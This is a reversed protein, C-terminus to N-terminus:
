IFNKGNVSVKIRTEIFQRSSEEQNINEVSDADIWDYVLHGEELHVDMCAINVQDPELNQRSIRERAHKESIEIAKKVAQEREMFFFREEEGHVLFGRNEEGPRVKAQSSVQVGATAAGVANAVEYNDPILLDFDYKERVKGYWSKSPAGIACVPFNLDMYRAINEGYIKEVVADEASKVLAEEDKVEPQGECFEEAYRKVAEKALSQNWQIFEGTFHMLDTPTLNGKGGRCAPLVREPGIIFGEKKPKICSDGGLAFTYLKASKIRLKWGGINAGEKSLEVRKNRVIGTDTTTGGMDTVVANEVGTLNITGIMSAAPGSLVTEIPREKILKESAISGDGKVVFIPSKIGTERLVNEIAELFRNIIPLLGANIVATNTRELYGLESALEHACMVPIRGARQVIEKVEREQSPNRISYAGSVAIAEICAPVKELTELVNSRSVNVLTRGKINMKGKVQYVYPSAISGRPMDGVILLAAKCLKKEVIANTALTTSLVTKEICAIEENKLRLGRMSDRIGDELRSHTTFAKAKRLISEAGRKETDMLVADTYTGGTDIGIVLSM